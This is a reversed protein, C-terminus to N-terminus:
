APRLPQKLEFEFQSGLKRLAEVMEAPSYCDGYSVNDITFQHHQSPRSMIVHVPAQAHIVSIVYVTPPQKARVLFLGEMSGAARLKAEAEQRSIRGESYQSPHWPESTRMADLNSSSPIRPPLPPPTSPKEYDELDEFEEDSNFVEKAVRLSPSGVHPSTSMPITPIVVPASITRGVPSRSTGPSTGPSSSSSPTLRSQSRRPATQVPVPTSPLPRGTPVSPTRGPLVNGSVPEPRKPLPRGAGASPRREAAAATKSPGSPPSLPIDDLQVHRFAEQVDAYTFEDKDTFELDQQRLSDWGSSPQPQGPLPPLPPLEGDDDDGNDAEQRSLERQRALFEEFSADKQEPQGPKSLAAQAQRQQAVEQEVRKRRIDLGETRNITTWRSTGLFALTKDYQGHYAAPILAKIAPLLSRKSDTNLIIPLEQALLDFSKTAVFRSLVSQLKKRESSTLLAKQLRKYYAIAERQSYHVEEAM